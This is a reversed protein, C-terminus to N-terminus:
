QPFNTLKSKTYLIKKIYQNKIWAFNLQLLITNESFIELFEFKSKLEKYSENTYIIIIQMEYMKTFLILCNSIQMDYM